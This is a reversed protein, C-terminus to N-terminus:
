VPFLSIVFAGLAGNLLYNYSTYAVENQKCFYIRETHM